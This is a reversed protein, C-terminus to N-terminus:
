LSEFIEKLSKQRNALQEGTPSLGNLVMKRGILYARPANLADVAVLQGDRHYWHSRGEGEVDRVTVCDQTSIRGAIQLKMDFQDSWFWPKPEYSVTEGLINCAVLEGTDIANGVSELRIDGNQLRYCACDGIAYIDSDSTQGLENVLIGNAIELDAQEALEVRPMAGIGAVVIDARIEKGNELVVSQIKEEGTLEKIQEGVHFQVGQDQHLKLIYDATEKSAVRGLINPAVEIVNVELGLGKAVAAMELGIYGGGIVVMNKAVDLEPRLREIDALDRITHIGSISRTMSLPLNRAASGTAIVLADYKQLRGDSLEINKNSRDIREVKNSTLLEIKEKEYWAQPRLLLRENEVKGLLYAKSLPPRQYPLNPEDGIIIIEGDFGKSRLKAACALSAQGAGIMVVTQM